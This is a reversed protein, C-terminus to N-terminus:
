GAKRRIRARIRLPSLPDLATLRDQVAAQVSERLGSTDRLRTSARIVVRHRRLKVRAREIGDVDQAARALARRLSARPAGIVVATDGSALVVADPRGPLVATLVLILGIFAAAAAAALTVVDSWHTTQLPGAFDQYPVRWLPSGLAASVAEIAGLIGAAALVAAVITAPTRRQPRFVRRARRRATPDSWQAAREAPPPQAGVPLLRTDGHRPSESM